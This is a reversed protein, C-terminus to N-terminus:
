AGAHCGITGAPEPCHDRQAQLLAVPVAGPRIQAAPRAIGLFGLDLPVAVRRKNRSVLQVSQGDTAPLISSLRDFDPPIPAVAIIYNVALPHAPYLMHSTVRGATTLANKTASEALGYHFFSTVDEIGLVNIHRGNWPPYHRGGNSLWFITQRLVRPDKLAFWVYGESPFTVATWAFRQREDADLLVLDEFGRRAPYYSLDASEGTQTPVHELSHFVAGARLSSYGREAPQELPLPAVHGRRFRSTTVVGCGAVDPFKLMAHHGFSMPGAMGSIVHRQYIATHGPCLTIHKDVRGDRAQTQMSLHLQGKKAAELTWRRNATDGHPPHQEGQFPTANGGFPLCFFDGRLVKLIAPLEAAAPEEAWPAVSFPQIKKNGVRFAVPGLHGGTETVFAEVERSAIRWSPQGFKVQLDTNM